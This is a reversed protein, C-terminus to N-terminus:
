HGNIINKLENLKNLAELPTMDNVDLKEIETRIEQERREFIDMQHERKQQVGNVSVALKPMNNTTLEDQELNSLIEKARKIVPNPLGALKAVQIGYSHDCGGEVIKRLFVVNDAWEKVAVNYNKVRPLMLALETLEHYHTAFITKAAVKASNHLYEAVAWAISLGDFTSTGRGIEDLLILSKPSANNLINATENMEVLFTSEGGALNDSAGVRTFIKDVVGISAKKAPVFCGMQALIVILGVQRLYTSKGAMNPGTLIILQDTESDLYSDNAVFSEGYPLLQEVVPHRGEKLEIASGDTIDPRVYNNEHALHAFNVLCDLTSIQQANKQIIQAHEATQKRLQDFLDYEIKVIKDEAELVKEEYAKLEPTIYREANVLTQKRIYHEPVKSLHPKTVEIYYGFVKNYSVKLTHIGTQEREQTQLRAIWDKGSYAIERLDDLEKDYGRKIIGGETVALPPDDVVANEITEVLAALDETHKVFETLQVSEASELAQKIEPIVKLSNKLANLDRASARNTTVKSVYRELDGIRSLQEQLDANQFKTNVLEEVADLRMRIQNPDLLPKLLWQVLKRGGMATRTRDIISILAGQITGNRLSRLLELNRRTDSDLGVFESGSYRQIQNFHSLQNKQVEKLYHLAAGAACVGADLDECGFGKLSLTGFHQTLTDYGFDRSFIWEERKTIFCGNNKGFKSQLFDSQEESILLESPNTKAIEESFQEKPVEGVSFEGTSIDLFALGAIDGKLYISALYNNRKSDLLNDTLVTGPSVIETIDRKVVGKALKPDEMQECIAVRYGAKVMKALHTDLSHYPFGALPVDSSKGHARSTLTLGLVEAAVKADDYFMEYFDGMRFFLIADQHKAKIALYQEM